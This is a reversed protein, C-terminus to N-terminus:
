EFAEKVLGALDEVSLEGEWKRMKGDTKIFIFTPFNEVNLLRALRPHQEMEVRVCDVDPFEKSIEEYRPIMAQCHSCLTVWSELITNKKIELAADHGQEYNFIKTKFLDENLNEVM